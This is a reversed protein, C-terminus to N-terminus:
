PQGERRTNTIYSPLDEATVVESLPGAEHDALVARLVEARRKNTVLWLVTPFVENRRQENGTRWYRVYQEAKRAIRGPHETARDVELFASLEWEGVAWALYADPRLTVTRGAPGPFSRWCTPETEFELLEVHTTERLQVYVETVGLTHDVFLDSPAPRRVTQHQLTQALRQGNVDLAYTYGQSGGKIGGVQRHLRTVVRLESLRQLRRRCTRAGAPTTPWILRNLQGGSAMRVLALTEIVLHDADSLQQSLRELRPALMGGAGNARTSDDRTEGRNPPSILHNRTATEVRDSVRDSMPETSM